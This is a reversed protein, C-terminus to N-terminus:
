IPAGAENLRAIAEELRRATLAIDLIKNKDVSPQTGLFSQIDGLFIRAANLSATEVPPHQPPPPRRLDAIRKYEAALSNATLFSLWRPSVFLSSDSYPANQERGRSGLRCEGFLGRILM